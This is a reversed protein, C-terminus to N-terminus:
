YGFGSSSASAYRNGQPNVFINVFIYNRVDRVHLWSLRRGGNYDRVLWQTGSIQQELLMVHGGGKRVAAAGSHAATRPFLRAWNSALNLRTDSLGLYKRLGCGCFRAPCGAPRGGIVQARNGNPDTFPEARAFQLLVSFFVFSLALAILFKKPTM